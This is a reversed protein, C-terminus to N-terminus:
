GNHLHYETYLSTCAAITRTCLRVIFVSTPREIVAGVEAHYVYLFNNSFNM